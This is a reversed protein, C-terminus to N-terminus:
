DVNAPDLYRERDDPHLFLLLHLHPLGRKQYEITWVCGLFRGFIQQQYLDQLLERVKIHFVRVVLDPQNLGTEGERLERQIEPWRPNATFTIFLSPRGLKRVIAMSDQYCQGIFRPGGLFSSPLVIRRGLAAADADDHAIADAVGSYVDARLQKQNFRIWDLTSQDCLAWIDVIYQQFLRYFAFPVTTQGGRPHLYFRYYARQTIRERVRQGAQNRLQLGPHWGPDGKPFLLVYHLPMYAAHASSIRQYRSGDQGGRAALVIERVPADAAADPIIVALEDSTPLNERRRDAGTKLTLQLQPSLLVRAPVEASCSRLRERATHYVHIYPNGIEYLMETLGQLIVLDLQPNTRSRAAAAYAPDYFYLQAYRPAAGPATELPGHLHYLEGHIQFVQV